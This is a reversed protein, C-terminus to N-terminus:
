IIYSKWKLELKWVMQLTPIKVGQAEFDYPAQELFNIFLVEFIVDFELYTNNGLKLEQNWKLSLQM